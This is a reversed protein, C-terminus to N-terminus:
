KKNRNESGYEARREHLSHTAWRDRLVIELYKGPFQGFGASSAEDLFRALIDKRIRVGLRDTQEESSLKRM